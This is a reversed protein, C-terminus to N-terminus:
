NIEGDPLASFDSSVQSPYCKYSSDQDMKIYSLDYKDGTVEDIWQPQIGVFINEDDSLCHRIGNLKVNTADIGLDTVLDKTDITTTYKKGIYNTM